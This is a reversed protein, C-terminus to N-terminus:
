RRKIYSHKSISVARLIAHLRKHEPIVRGHEDVCRYQGDVLATRVRGKAVSFGKLTPADLIGVRVAETLVEPNALSDETGDGLFKIAQIIELAEQKIREKENKIWPDALPDVYGRMSISIARKAIKVSEIIEKARAREVAESYAVVHVIHPELAMGYFMSIGIQGKAADMSAPMSMLGTRIMRYVTFNKGALSEVLERKAIMKAIDARPSIGSPTELMFQRIYEKVGLRKAVFAAIYATAVEVADHALRLAWQHSDTVEVPVNNQANWRIAEMNERIAELLPRDSRRDLDSYWMLPIAAWANSITEKLLKSFELLHTTGSYCRVLPYNGTRSAEYLKVFDDKSRIPVGGAGDQSPDMKEPEFFFQQCNQDPAISIIDLLQSEALKRIAEMTEELTQLGIHHRILPYPSKFKIRERLTQPYEFKGLSKKAEGRLFMIVDEIEETGDFVKSIFKFERAVNATELTGGFVYTRNDLLKHKKLLMELEKLLKRLAAAGLRYSIAVIDPNLTKIEKVLVEIPVASGLYITEYGNEQALKLFNFVGVSHVCSGISAGLIKLKM